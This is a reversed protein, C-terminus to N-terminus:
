KNIEFPLTINNGITKLKDFPEFCSLFDWHSM